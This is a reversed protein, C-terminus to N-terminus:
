SLSRWPGRRDCKRRYSHFGDEVKYELIKSNLFFVYTVIKNPKTAGRTLFWDSKIWQPQIECEIYKACVGWLECSLSTLILAIHRKLDSADRSNASDSIWAYILSFMLDRRWQSRHPSDVPPDECCAWNRPFYKWKIVDDHVRMFTSHPLKTKNGSDIALIGNLHVFSSKYALHLYWPCPCTIVDWLYQPIYNSTGVRPVQEQCM